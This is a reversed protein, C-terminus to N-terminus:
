CWRNPESSTQEDLQDKESTPGSAEKTRHPGEPSLGPDEILRWRSHAISRTTQQHYAAWHRLSLQQNTRWNRQLTSIWSKTNVWKTRESLKLCFLTMMEVSKSLPSRINIRAASREPKLNTKHIYCKNKVKVKINLHKPWESLEFKTQQLTKTEASPPM